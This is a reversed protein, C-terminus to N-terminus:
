FQIEKVGVQCTTCVLTGDIANLNYDVLGNEDKENKIDLKYTESTGDPLEFVLANVMTAPDDDYGFDIFISEMGWFSESRGDYVEKEVENAYIAKVKLQKSDFTGNEMLNEGKDDIPQFEICYVMGMDFLEELDCSTFLPLMLMLLAFTKITKM